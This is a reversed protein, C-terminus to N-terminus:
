KFFIGKDKKIPMAFNNIYNGFPSSFFDESGLFNNM